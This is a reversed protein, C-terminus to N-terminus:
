EYRGCDKNFRERIINGIEVFDDMLRWLSSIIEM